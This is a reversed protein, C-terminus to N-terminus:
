HDKGAEPQSAGYLFEDDDDRDVYMSYIGAMSQDFAVSMM